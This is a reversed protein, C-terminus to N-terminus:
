LIRRPCGPPAQRDPLSSDEVERVPPGSGSERRPGSPDGKGIGGLDIEMEEEHFVVVDRGRSKGLELAQYLGHRAFPQLDRTEPPETRNQFDWIAVVRGLCPDFAGDTVESWHLASKLVDSTEASVNQPAAFASLNARGIESDPRYRTLVSEVRRMEQFAADIAGQAYRQDKHVVAVDGFTGMMPLTRRVLRKRGRAAFPISGVVFAGIGLSIFDRRSPSPIKRNEVTM